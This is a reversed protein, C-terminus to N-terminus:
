VCPPIPDTVNSHTNIFDVALVYNWQGAVPIWLSGNVVDRAIIKLNIPAGEKKFIVCASRIVLTLDFRIRDRRLTSDFLQLFFLQAFVFYLDANDADIRKGGAGSRVM